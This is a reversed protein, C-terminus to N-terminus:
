SGADPARVSMGRCVASSGGGHRMFAIVLRDFLERGCGLIKVAGDHRQDLLEFGDVPVVLAHVGADIRLQLADERVVAVLLDLV